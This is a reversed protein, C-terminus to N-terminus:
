SIDYNYEYIKIYGEKCMAVVNNKNFAFQTFSCDKYCGNAELFCIPVTKVLDNWFISESYQTFSNRKFPKFFPKGNKLTVELSEDKM